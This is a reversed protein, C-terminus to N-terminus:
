KDIIANQYIQYRRNRGTRYSICERTINHERVMWKRRRGQRKRPDEKRWVTSYLPLYVTISVHIVGKNGSHTFTM